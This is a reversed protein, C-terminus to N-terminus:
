PKTIRLNPAFIFTALFDWTFFSGAATSAKLFVEILGASFDDGLVLPRVFAYVKIALVFAPEPQKGSIALPKGQLTNLGDTGKVLNELGAVQEPCERGYGPLM